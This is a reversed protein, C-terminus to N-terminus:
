SKPTAPRQQKGAAKCPDSCFIAYQGKHAFIKGCTKCKKVNELGFAKVYLCLNYCIFGQIWTGSPDKIRAVQSRNEGRPTNEVELIEELPTMFNNVFAKFEDGVGDKLMDEVAEGLEKRFPELDPPAELAKIAAEATKPDESRSFSHLLEVVGTERTLFRLWMPNQKPHDQMM